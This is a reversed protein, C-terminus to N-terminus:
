FFDVLHTINETPRVGYLNSTFATFLFLVNFYVEVRGRLSNQITEHINYLLMPSIRFNTSRSRDRDRRGHEHVYNGTENFCMLPFRSFIRKMRKYKFQLRHSATYIDESREDCICINVPTYKEKLFNNPHLKQKLERDELKMTREGKGSTKHKKPPKKNSQRFSADLLVTFQASVSGKVYFKKVVTAM